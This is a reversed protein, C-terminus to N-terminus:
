NTRTRSKSRLSAKIMPLKGSAQLSKVLVHTFEERTLKSDPAIDFSKLDVTIGFQKGILAAAQDGTVIANEDVPAAHDKLYAAAKDIAASAEARTIDATPNFSGDENM